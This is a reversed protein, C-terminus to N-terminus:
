PGGPFSIGMGLFDIKKLNFSDTQPSFPRFKGDEFYFKGSSAIIIVFQNIPGFDYNRLSIACGLYTGKQINKSSASKFSKFKPVKKSAQFINPNNKLPVFLFNVM